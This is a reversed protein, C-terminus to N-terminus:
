MNLLTVPHLQFLVGRSLREDKQVLEMKQSPDVQNWKKPKEYYHPLVDERPPSKTFLRIIRDRINEQLQNVRDPGLHLPGNPGECALRNIAGRLANIHGLTHALLRQPRRLREFCFM